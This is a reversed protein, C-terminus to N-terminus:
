SIICEEEMSHVEVELAAAAAAAAALAAPTSSSDGDLRDLETLLRIRKSLFRDFLDADDADVLVGPM